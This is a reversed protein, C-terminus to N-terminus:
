SKRRYAQNQKMMFEKEEALSKALEAAVSSIQDIQRQVAEHEAQHRAQQCVIERALLSDALRDIQDFVGTVFAQLEGHCARIDALASRAPDGDVSQNPLEVSM